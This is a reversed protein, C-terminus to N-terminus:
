YDLPQSVVYQAGVPLAPRKLNATESWLDQGQVWGRLWAALSTTHPMLAPPNVQGSIHHNSDYVIVPTNEAVCNVCAYIGCGWDCFPLLGFPWNWLSNTSDPERLALYFDVVCLRHITPSHTIPLLIGDRQFNGDGPGFGGNGIETYLATLLSPLSLSLGAEIAGISADSLPPSSRRPPHLSIIHHVHELIEQM